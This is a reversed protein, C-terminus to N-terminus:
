EPDEDALQFHRLIKSRADDDVRRLERAPVGAVVTWPAVDRTVMAGPAVIAGRGVEIDAAITAGTGIVAFRRIRPGAVEFPSLGFRKLYVDNDNVTTAGPGIFVDSEILMNGTIVAGDIIRSRAEVVTDYMMMVGRGVVTDDALRCGERISALDGILVREGLRLNSYLVCNAGIVCDAGIQVTGQGSEIPRNTTGARIPPRGIVAGPLIRTNRGVSVNAYFAVNSGVEVGSDLRLDGLISINQGQRVSPHIEVRTM